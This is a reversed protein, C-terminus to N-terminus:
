SLSMPTGGEWKFKLYFSGYFGDFDDYEEIDFDPYKFDKHIFGLKRCISELYSSIVASVRLEELTPSIKTYNILEELLKTTLGKHRLNEPIVITNIDIYKDNIDLDIIFDTDIFMLRNDFSNVCRIKLGFVKELIDKIDERIAM